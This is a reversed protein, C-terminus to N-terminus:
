SREHTNEKDNYLKSYLGEQSLLDEHSGDQIIRGNEFVYIKEAQKVASLRHAVTITTRKKLFEKLRKHVENETQPDLASTAEDLIVIQPKRLVMRAIALRQRQGGSLRIGRSGVQTELGNPQQRIFDDLCAIHLAEWVEEDAAHVGMLINERVSSQFLGPAQLVVGIQERVNDLGITYIDEKNFRVMGQQPKYLGTLVQVLTSKGGGTAGVISIHQGAPIHLSVDELVPIGEEYSFSVKELSIDVGNEVNLSTGNDRGKNEEEQAIFDNVRDLSASAGFWSYQIGVLEQVPGMLVWLYSFIAIMEGVSLDTSTLAVFVAAVRFLDFGALFIIFSGKSAADSKWKSNTIADRMNGASSKLHTLFHKDRRSVRLEHVAELFDTVREQFNAIASNETGKLKKVKKGLKITTLVVVPYLVLIFLGIKVNIWLLISATAMLQLISLILGNISKSIFQEITDIDTTLLSATKGTGNQEFYKVAINQLRSLAKVRLNYCVEQSIGTFIKMQAINLVFHVFRLVLTLVLTIGIYHVPEHWNSPLLYDLKDTLRGGGELLLDDILLPIFLPQLVVALAAIFAFIHAKVLAPKHQM